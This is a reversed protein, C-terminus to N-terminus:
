ILNKITIFIFWADMKFGQVFKGNHKSYCPSLNIKITALSGFKQFFCTIAGNVGYVQDNGFFFQGSFVSVSSRSYTTCPTRSQKAKNRSLATLAPSTLSTAFSSASKSCPIACNKVRGKGSSGFYQGDLSAFAAQM